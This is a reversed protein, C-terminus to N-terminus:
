HKEAYSALMYSEDISYFSSLIISLMFGLMM